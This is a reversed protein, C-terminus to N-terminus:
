PGSTDMVKGRKVLLVLSEANYSYQVARGRANGSRICREEERWVKDSKACPQICIRLARAGKAMPM